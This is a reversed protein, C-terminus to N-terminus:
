PEESEPVVPPEPEVVTSPTWKGDADRTFGLHMTIFDHVQKASVFDKNNTGQDIADDNARVPVDREDSVNTYVTDNRVYLGRTAAVFVFAPTDESAEVPVEAKTAVVRLINPNRWVNRGLADVTLVKGVNQPDILYLAGLALAWEEETGTFLDHAVVIEYASKGILSKLWQDETGVFGEIVAVDYASAGTRLKSARVKYNKFSGDALKAVVEVFEDGVLTQLLDFGSLMAPNVLPDEIAM